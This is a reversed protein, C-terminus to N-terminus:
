RPGFCLAPVRGGVALAASQEVPPEMALKRALPTGDDACSHAASSRFGIDITRGLRIRAAPTRRMPSRADLSAAGSYGDVRFVTRKALATRPM